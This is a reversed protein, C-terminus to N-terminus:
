LLLFCLLALQRLIRVALLRRALKFEELDVSERQRVVHEVFRELRLTFALLALDNM